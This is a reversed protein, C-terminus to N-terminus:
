EDAGEGEAEAAGRRSPSRSRDAEERAPGAPAAAATSREAAREASAAAGDRRMSIVAALDADSLQRAKKRLRTKRKEANRLDQQIRKREAKMAKQQDRLQRIERLLPSEPEDRGAAAAPSV